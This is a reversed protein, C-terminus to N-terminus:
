KSFYIGDDFWDSQDDKENKNSTTKKKAQNKEEINDDEYEGEVEQSDSFKSEKDKLDRAKEQSKDDNQGVFEIKDEEVEEDYEESEEEEVEALAEPEEVKEKEENSNTKDSNKEAVTVEDTQSDETAEDEQSDETEENEDEGLYSDPAQSSARDHLSVSSTGQDIMAEYQERSLLIERPKSGNSPGIIGAAELSDLISAARGYGIRLTRQLFSTSARQNNIIIEKAEEFLDDEHENEGDFGIAGMGKVQQKDTIGDLYDAGGTKSILYNCINKIEKDSVYAGQLRKPKSTDPTTILMDGQGLLKEAGSIDLITKSDIASAVSFAIRAPINAKILGTIVDVSPRQTALILHIGVARAMQALRIVSAEIDKAAAVMLDALEDIIFILYPIKESEKGKAVMAENYSSINKKHASSLIEFRRDMENLCWKLANITKSVNTIVPTLLHPINNYITLEVKKPDVMIFRLDDPNNQYLLSIIISNLCVSKGSNTAGAVLLHPMKSVSYFWSEGTVDEGLAVMLNNNRTKFDKSSLMKKLGVVAKNKNPVEIGVLSKGPIPAEIRIPHAALALSLDNSLTTIKSLKIGEMPKFTYQTVTPGVFSERMEVLIGFNELTKKIMEKNKEINEGTAKSDEQRLLNLPLDIKLGKNKWDTASTKTHKTEAKPRDLKSETQTLSKESFDFPLGEKGTEAEDTELDDGVQLYLPDNEEEIEQYDAEVTNKRKRSFLRLLLKAPYLLWSTKPLIHSLPKNLLLLWAVLFLALIVLLGGLFGFFKSFFLALYLGLYGGGSGAEAMLFWKDPSIFFHLLSESSLFILFLGIYHISKIQSKKGKYIFAGWALLLFPFLWKGWGFAIALMQKFYNGVQGGADFLGLLALLGIIYILIVALSAKLSSDLNIKPLAIYELAEKKQQKPRGRKKRGM